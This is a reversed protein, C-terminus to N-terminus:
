ANPLANLSLLLYSVPILDFDSGDKRKRSECIFSSPKYQNTLRAELQNGGNGPILILPDLNSAGCTCLLSLMVVVVTVTLTAVEIKLGEEQEKGM